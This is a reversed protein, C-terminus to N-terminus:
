WNLIINQTRLQNIWRPFIPIFFLLFEYSKLILIGLIMTSSQNFTCHRLDSGFLVIKISLIYTVLKTNHGQVDSCCFKISFVGHKRINIQYNCVSLLPVLWNCSPYLWPYEWGLDIWYRRMCLDLGESPSWLLCVALGRLYSKIESIVM